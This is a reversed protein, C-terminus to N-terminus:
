FASQGLPRRSAAEPDVAITGLTCAVRASVVPTAIPSRMAFPRSKLSGIDHMLAVFDPLVASKHRGTSAM